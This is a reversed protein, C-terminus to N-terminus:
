DHQIRDPACLWVYPRGEQDLEIEGRVQVHEGVFYDVPEDGWRATFAYECEAPIAITFIHLAPYPNGLNLYTTGDSGRGTSAVPGEVVREEGVYETADEWSIATEWSLWTEEEGALDSSDRDACTLKEMLQSLEAESIGVDDLVFAEAVTNLNTATVANGENMGVFSEVILMSAEEYLLHGPAIGYYNAYTQVYDEQIEELTAGMLAGLIAVAVGTRDQGIICHILYPPDNDIMFQLVERFRSRFENGATALGINVTLVDGRAGVRRYIGSLGYADAQRDASGGVNIITNVGAEEVLQSAYPSRDDDLAPHCSRYLVGDCLNGHAVMRFNAYEADSSCSGRDEVKEIRRQELEAKYGAKESIGVTIPTGVDVGFLQVLSAYTVSIYVRDGFLMVGVEGLPTDPFFGEVFVAETVRNGLEVTLVDGIEIGLMALDAATINATVGGYAEDISVCCGTITGAALDVTVEQALLSAGAFSVALLVVLSAKTWRQMRWRGVTPM